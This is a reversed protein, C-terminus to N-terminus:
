IKLIPCWIDDFFPWSCRWRLNRLKRSPDTATPQQAPARAPTGIPDQSEFTLLSKEWLKKKDSANEEFNCSHEGPLCPLFPFFAGASGLPRGHQQQVHQQTELPRRRRGEEEEQEKFHRSTPRPQHKPRVMPFKTENYVSKASTEGPITVVPPPIVFTDIKFNTINPMFTGNSGPGDSSHLGPIFNGDRAQFLDTRVKLGSIYAEGQRNGKRQVRLSSGWRSSHIRRQSESTEALIRWTEPDGADDPVRNRPRSLAM